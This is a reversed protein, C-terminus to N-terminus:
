MLQTCLKLLRSFSTCVIIADQRGAHIRVYRGSVFMVVGGMLILTQSECLSFVERLCVRM